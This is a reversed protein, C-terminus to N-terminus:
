VTFWNQFDFTPVDDGGQRPEWAGSPAGMELAFDGSEMDSASVRPPTVDSFAEPPRTDSRLRVTWQRLEGPHNHLQPLVQFLEACSATKSIVIEYGLGKLSGNISSKCKFVLRKLQAINVAIGNALRCVGCVLSRKWKDTDDSNVFLEVADIIERFDDIRKNRKNRNSPASLAATIRRYVEKDDESLLEWHQPHRTDFSPEM